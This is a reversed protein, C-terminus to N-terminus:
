GLICRASSISKNSGLLMFRNSGKNVPARTEMDFRILAGDGRTGFRGGFPDLVFM